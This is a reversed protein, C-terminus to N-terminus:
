NTRFSGLGINIGKGLVIKALLHGGKLGCASYEGLLKNLVEDLVLTCFAALHGLNRM